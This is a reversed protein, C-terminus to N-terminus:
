IDSINILNGRRAWDLGLEGPLVNDQYCRLLADDLGDMYIRQDDASGTERILNLPLDVIEPMSKQAANVCYTHSSAAEVGCAPLDGTKVQKICQWLKQIHDQEPSGYEVLHGDAFHAKLNLNGEKHEGKIVADAFEFHFIPGVTKECAHTAYFRIEVDADTHAVLAATDFNEIPYARYLEATVDHLTASRDLQEGLLYFMNHLHHAFSNSIPSDYVWQGQNDQIKGAWSNRNYYSKARPQLFLSKLRIPKGFVGSQIDRKIQHIVSSYCWQYGVAIWKNHRAQIELMQQVEAVTACLPKECLVDSGHSVALCSQPCHYQIPSSVIALDATHETYYRELSPFIPIQRSHLEQLRECKEPFPEVVGILEYDLGPNEDLIANLYGLGYGNIGVLVISVRKKM